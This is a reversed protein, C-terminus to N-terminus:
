SFKCENYCGGKRYNFIAPRANKQQLAQHRLNPMSFVSSKKTLYCHLKQQLNSNLKHLKIRYYLSNYTRDRAFKCNSRQPCENLKFRYYLTIGSKLPFEVDYRLRSEQKLTQFLSYAKLIGCKKSTQEFPFAYGFAFESIGLDAM